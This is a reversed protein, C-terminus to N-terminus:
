IKVGRSNFSPYVEKNKVSGLFLASYTDTVNDFFTMSREYFGPALEEIIHPHKKFVDEWCMKPIRLDRDLNQFISLHTEAYKDFFKLIEATKKDLISGVQHAKVKSDAM